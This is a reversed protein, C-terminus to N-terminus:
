ISTNVILVASNFAVASSLESSRDSVMDLLKMDRGDVAWVSPFERDRGVVAPDMGPLRTDHQSVSLRMPSDNLARAELRHFQLM